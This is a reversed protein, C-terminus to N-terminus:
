EVYFECARNYIRLIEPSSLILKIEKFDKDQRVTVYEKIEELSPRIKKEQAVTYMFEELKVAQSDMPTQYEYYLPSKFSQKAYAYHELTILRGNFCPPGIFAEQFFSIIDEHEVDFLFAQVFTGIRIDISNKILNVNNGPILGPEAILKTLDTIEQNRKTEDLISAFNEKKKFLIMLAFITEKAYRYQTSTLHNKKEELINLANELHQYNSNISNM